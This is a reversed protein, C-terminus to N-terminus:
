RLLRVPTSGAHRHVDAWLGSGRVEMAGPRPLQLAEDRVLLLPEGTRALVTWWAASRAELALGCHLAWEAHPGVVDFSFRM